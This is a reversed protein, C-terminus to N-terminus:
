LEYNQLGKVTQGSDASNIDPFSAPELRWVNQGAHLKTNSHFLSRKVSPSSSACEETTTLSPSDLRRRQELKRWSMKMAQQHNAINSVAANQQRELRGIEKQLLVDAQHLEVKTKPRSSSDIRTSHKSSDSFNSRSNKTLSPSHLSMNGLSALYVQKNNM